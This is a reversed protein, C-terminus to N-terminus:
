TSYVPPPIPENDADSELSNNSLLNDHRSALLLIQLRQVERQLIEVELHLHDANNTSSTRSHSTLPPLDITSDSLLGELAAQTEHLSLTLEHRSVRQHTLAPNAPSLLTSEEPAYYASSRSRNERPSNQEETSRRIAPKPLRSTSSVDSQSRGHSLGLGPPVPLHANILAPMPPPIGVYSRRAPTSGAFDHRRREELQYGSPSLMGLQGAGKILLPDPRVRLKTRSTNRINLASTASRNDIRALPGRPFYLPAGDSEDRPCSARTIAPVIPLPRDAFAVSSPPKETDKPKPFAELDKEWLYEDWYSSPSQEPKRGFHFWRGKPGNQKLTRMRYRRRIRYFLLLLLIASISGLIGAVIPGMQAFQASALESSSRPTLGTLDLSPKAQPTFTIVPELPLWGRHISM